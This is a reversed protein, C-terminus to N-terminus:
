IYLVNYTNYTISMHMATYYSFQLLVVQKHVSGKLMGTPWKASNDASIFIYNVPFSSVSSRM